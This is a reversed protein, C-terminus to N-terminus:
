KKDKTWLFDIGFRGSGLVIYFLGIWLFGLAPLCNWLGNQIQQMFIAVLMTCMILFSAIRTQIGLLLLLGGIGESFAGMWAFFIPAIAFIGGYQAVDHPFWYAVEFLGLNNDEPSWPLGFKPSGFEVSLLYGCVVRPITLILDQTWHTLVIPKTIKQILNMNYIKFPETEKPVRIKIM